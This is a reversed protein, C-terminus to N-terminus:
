ILALALMEKGHVSEPLFPLPPAQRMVTWVTLDEPASAIFARYQQLVSKAESLSYVILGSLLQPGVPHLRFEFRTVVGFNGGGGKLAWFLDPHTAAGARGRGGRHRGRRIRSQRGDDRAQPEVLRVRRGPDAGRHGHHLQDGGAHR